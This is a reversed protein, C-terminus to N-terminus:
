EQRQAASDRSCSAFGVLIDLIEHDAGGLHGVERVEVVHPRGISAMM